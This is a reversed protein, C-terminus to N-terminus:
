SGDFLGAHTGFRAKEIELMKLKTLVGGGASFGGSGNTAALIRHCPVIPAFPNHGLAQGVARSAGPEGLGAAMEGYTVTRGPPIARAAAYVRQNFPPVGRMDLKVDAMDDHHGQLTAVVRAIIAQVDPPPMAEPVGAFRQQMHTRTADTTDWPLLVGALGADGENWAIGCHGIPTDFLAFGAATM